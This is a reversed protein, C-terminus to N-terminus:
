RDSRADITEMLRQCEATTLPASASGDGPALILALEAPTAAWFEAPRWGLWQGALAAWRVACPAFAASM